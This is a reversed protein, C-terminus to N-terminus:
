WGSRGPVCRGFDATLGSGWEIGMHARCRGQVWAALGRGRTSLVDEQARETIELGLGGELDPPRLMVGPGGAPPDWLGDVADAGRARM